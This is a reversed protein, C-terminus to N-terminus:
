SGESCHFIGNYMYLVQLYRKSRWLMIASTNSRSCSHSAIMEVYAKSPLRQYSATHTHSFNSCENEVREDGASFHKDGACFADTELVM